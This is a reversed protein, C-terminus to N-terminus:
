DAPQLTITYNSYLRLYDTLQSRTYEGEFPMEEMTPEHVGDIRSNLSEKLDDRLLSVLYSSFNKYYENRTSEYLEVYKAATEYIRTDFRCNVLVKGDKQVASSFGYLNDSVYEATGKCGDVLFSLENYIIRDDIPVTIDFFKYGDKVYSSIVAKNRLYTYDYMEDYSAVWINDKGEKGYLDCVTRFFQIEDDQPRHSFKSVLYPHERSEQEALEALKEENTANSDGGFIEAKYLSPSDDFCIETYEKSTLRTMYVNSNMRAAELYYKSGNPQALTKMPYGIKKMTKEFDEDFGSSIEKPADIYWKTDDVDHWYVANGMDTMFRLEEWSVYPNSTSTIIDQIFGEKNYENWVSAQISEGFTFRRDNGCGDSVCLPVSQSGQSPEAGFHFFEKEDIWLGNFAAFVRSWGNEYSDDVSYSFAFHKNFKLPCVSLEIDDPNSTGVPVKFTFTMSNDTQSKTGVYKYGDPNYSVSSNLSFRYTEKDPYRGKLVSEKVKLKIDVTKSPNDGVQYLLCEWDKSNVSKSIIQGKFNQYTATITFFDLLDESPSIKFSYHAPFDIKLCSFSAITLVALAIFRKVTYNRM